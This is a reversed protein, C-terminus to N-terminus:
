SSGRPIEKDLIEQILAKTVQGVDGPNAISSVADELAESDFRCEECSLEIILLLNGLFDLESEDLRDELFDLCMRKVHKNEITFEKSDEEVTRYNYPFVTGGKKQTEVWGKVLGSIAEKLAEISIGGQLYKWLISLKM